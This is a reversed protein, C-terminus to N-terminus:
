IELFIPIQTLDNCGDETIIALDEIRIGGWDPYYLGPEITVANGVQLPHDNRPSLGPTEHIELGVSHGTTHIFGCHVGNEIGTKYGLNTFTDAAAQHAAQGTIGAKLMDITAKQAQQVAAFAKRVEPSATGRVVTRTLDGFYGTQVVRPFIDMVIPQNAYIPGYGAQHPDSSQKGPAVITGFAVGGLRAIEADIEGRLIDATLTTNNWLLTNDPQSTTERLVTFARNMGAEALRVGRTIKQIETDDKCARQPFFNEEPIVSISRAALKNALYLPFDAPVRWKKCDLAEAITKIMGSITRPPEKDLNFFEKIRSSDIVQVDKSAQKQARGFEMSNVFIANFKEYQIWLFPDPACFGTIYWLNACEESAAYILRGTSAPTPAISTQSPLYQLKTFDNDQLLSSDTSTIPQIKNNFDISYSDFSIYDLYFINIRLKTPSEWGACAAINHPINDKQQIFNQTYYGFGAQIQHAFNAYQFTLACKTEGFEIQCNKLGASNPAYSFQQFHPNQGFQQNSPLVPISLDKLKTQLLAHANSNEPLPSGKLNPVLEQWFVDLIDAMNKTCSTTAITIDEKPLVIAYQGAAGDGRYGHRSKWFQYGYGQKWDFRDNMSNDAHPITAEALYDAPLIQKNQWLGKNLLLQAFKAIDETCLYLGTGGQNIGKPCCEWCGPVIGLPEFLRPILYERVNIGTVKRIVASLMYSAATNYVFHTGPTYELKSSLFCHIFDPEKKDLLSFFMCSKHGSRMTLLDELTVDLMKKDTINQTYEPFFSILKDQIHLLNEQQALGIACSTFSKSLSYLAHPITPNYPKWWGELCVKGHRMIMISNIYKISSQLKEIMSLLIESSIGVSEPTTRPLLNM